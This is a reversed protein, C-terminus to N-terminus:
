KTCDFVLNLDLNTPFFVIEISKLRALTRLISSSTKSSFTTGLTDSGGVPASSSCLVSYGAGPAIQRGKSTCDLPGRALRAEAVWTGIWHSCMISSCPHDVGLNTDACPHVPTSMRLHFGSSCNSLTLHVTLSVLSLDTDTLLLRTQFRARWTDPLQLDRKALVYM